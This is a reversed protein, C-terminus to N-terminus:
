EERLARMPDISLGRRAPGLAALLGVGLVVAVVTFLVLIARETPFELGGFLLAGGLVCGLGVGLALQNLARAFVSGLIRRPQAGLATRIGIERRRQTVTFSMLAHIGAASLLLVSLTAFAIALTLVREGQLRQRHLQAVSEVRSLRLAPDLATTIERLRPAFSEPAIGRVRIVLSVPDLTGAVAPHYVTASGDDLSHKAPFDDVIGVIEYWGGLKVGGPELDNETYTYRLRRGLAEGGGLVRTVFSRNVVVATATGTLDGPRLPRGALISAGYVELLEPDVQLFTVHHRTPEAAARPDAVEIAGGSGSFWVWDGPVHSGFTVDSVGPEAELRRVLEAQRDALHSRFEREYAEVEASPPTMRDMGVRAALLEEAAPGPGTVGFRYFEMWGLAVAFPLITVAAAVQGVILVTWTRGLRMGTGGALQRLKSQLERGTAKLAPFIGVIAAALVALGAVYVVANLSLRFDWWYPIREGALRSVFAGVVQLLLHAGAL